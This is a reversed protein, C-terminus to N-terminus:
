VYSDIFKRIVSEAQAYAAGKGVVVLPAKASKLAKAIDAIRGEEAGAKPPLPVERISEVEEDEM